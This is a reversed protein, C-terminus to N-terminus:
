TSKLSFRLRRNIVLFRVRSRDAYRVLSKDKRSCLFYDRHREFLDGFYCDLTIMVDKLDENFILLCGHSDSDRLLKATWNDSCCGFAHHFVDEAM